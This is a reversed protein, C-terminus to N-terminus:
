ARPRSNASSASPCPPSAPLPTRTGYLRRGPLHSDTVSLLRIGSDLDDPSNWSEDDHSRRHRHREAAAGSGGSSAPKRGASASPVLPDIAAYPGPPDSARWVGGGQWGDDLRLHAGGAANGDDAERRAYDGIVATRTAYPPRTLRARGAAARRVPVARLLPSVATYRVRDATTACAATPRAPTASQGPWRPSTTAASRAPAPAPASPGARTFSVRALDRLADISALEAARHGARGAAGRSAADEGADDTLLLPLPGALLQERGRTLLYRAYFETDAAEADDASAYRAELLLHGDATSGSAAVAYGTLSPQRPSSRRASHTSTSSSGSPSCRRPRRSPPPRTRPGPAGSLWCPVDGDDGLAPHAGEKYVGRRVAPRRRHRRQGDRRSTAGATTEGFTVQEFRDFDVPGGVYGGFTWTMASTSANFAVTTHVVGRRAVLAAPLPDAPRRRRARARRLWSLMQPVFLPEDEYPRWVAERAPTSTM